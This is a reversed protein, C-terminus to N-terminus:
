WELAARQGIHLSDHRRRKRPPAGAAASNAAASRRDAPARATKGPEARSVIENFLFRQPSELMIDLTFDLM